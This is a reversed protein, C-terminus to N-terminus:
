LIQINIYVFDDDDNLIPRHQEKILRVRGIKNHVYSVYNIMRATVDDIIVFNCKRRM